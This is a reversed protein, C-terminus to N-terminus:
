RLVIMKRTATYNGAQINYLYVGSSVPEGAENRGDWYAAKNKEVYLGSCQNGLNLTKVLKGTTEYIRIIVISDEKLQFPFWTEPNFPNPYNQLLNSYTIEKYPAALESAKRLALIVDKSNIIGNDDMDAALKQKDTPVKIEATFQKILDVDQLTVSGDGDIDGKICNDSNVVTFILENSEIGTHLDVAKIKLKGVPFDSDIKVNYSFSGTSDLNILFSKLELGDASFFKLYAGSLETKDIGYNYSFGHGKINVSVGISAKEPLVEIHPSIPKFLEPDQNVVLYTGSYDGEQATGLIRLSVSVSCVPFETSNMEGTYFMRVSEFDGAEIVAQARALKGCCYAIIDYNTKRTGINRLMFSSILVEKEMIVPRIYGNNDYINLIIGEKKIISNNALNDTIVEWEQGKKKTIITSLIPIDPPRNSLSGYVRKRIEQELISGLLLIGKDLKDLESQISGTIFIPMYVNKSQYTNVNGVEGEILFPIEAEEVMKFGNIMNLFISSMTGFAEGAILEYVLSLTQSDKDMDSSIGIASLISYTGGFALGVPGGLICSIGTIAIDMAMSNIFDDESYVDFSLVKHELFELMADNAKKRKSIDQKYMETEEPTLNPLIKLANRAEVELENKFKNSLNIINDLAIDFGDSASTAKGIASFIDGMPIVLFDVSYKISDKVYKEPILDLIGTIMNGVINGIQEFKYGRIRATVLKGKKCIEKAEEVVKDIQQETDVFSKNIEAIAETVIIGIGSLNIVISQNNPDSSKITITALYSKSENPIFKIGIVMGRQPAIYQPFYLSPFITFAKDDFTISYLVLNSNGINSIVLNNWEYSMGVNVTKFNHSQESLNIVPQNQPISIFKYIFVKGDMSGSVLFNGNPSFAISSIMDTHGEFTEICEKTKIEWLRVTNDWSGSALLSGDPSFSISSVWDLHGKLPPELCKRSKVDWLRITNDSSGSALLNGDPSFVVSMVNDTHGILTDICQKRKVDWLRITDDVSGSALLSGDPSFAISNIIDVHDNLSPDIIKKEKINWLWIANGSTFAFINGDPSFDISKVWNTHEKITDNHKKNQVDWIEISNDFGIALLSSDFSFAVSNVWDSRKDSLPVLKPPIITADYLWVGTSSGVALYKGDPSFKVDAVEGFELKAITPTRKLTSLKVEFYLRNSVNGWGVSNYAQMNWRYKVGDNLFGIPLTFSTGTLHEERFIINEEGYPFKSIFLGYLDANPVTNWKFTPTLTALKEGPESITGPSIIVPPQLLGVSSVKPNYLFQAALETAPGKYIPYIGIPRDKESSVNKYLVIHLHVGRGKERCEDPTFSGGCTVNGTNGVKGIPTIGAVVDQGDIVLIEDLHAYRLAFKTLSDYIIIHNGYGKPDFNRVIAKGSIGAYAIQGKAGEMSWDDAYYDDGEHSVYNIWDSQPTDFMWLIKSVGNPNLEVGPPQDGNSVSVLIFYLELFVALVILKRFM